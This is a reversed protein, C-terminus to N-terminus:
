VLEVPRNVPTGMPECGFSKGFYTIDEPVVVDLVHGKPADTSFLKDVSGYYGGEGDEFIPRNFRDIGRFQLLLTAKDNTL